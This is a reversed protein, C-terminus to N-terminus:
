VVVEDNSRFSHKAATFSPADEPALEDAADLVGEDVELEELVAEVVEEDPPAASEAVISHAFFCIELYSVFM